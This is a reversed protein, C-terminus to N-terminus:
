LGPLYDSLHLVIVFLVQRLVTAEHGLRSSPLRYTLLTLLYRTSRRRGRCFVRVPKVNTNTGARLRKIKRGSTEKKEREGCRLLLGAFGGRLRQLFYSLASKVACTLRAASALEDFPRVSRKLQHPSTTLPLRAGAAAGGRIKEASVCRDSGASPTNFM